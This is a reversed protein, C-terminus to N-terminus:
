ERGPLTKNTVYRSPSPFFSLRKKVTYTSAYLTFPLVPKLLLPSSFPVPKPLLPLHKTEKNIRVINQLYHYLRGYLYSGPGAEVTPLTRDSHHLSSCQIAAVALTEAAPGTREWPCQAKVSRRATGSRWWPLRKPGARRSYWSAPHFSYLSLHVSSTPFSFSNALTQVHFFHVCVAFFWYQFNLVFVRLFPIAHGCDWNGCEHTQSHNYIGMFSRGIRSCSIHPGIRPIFFIAWLCM